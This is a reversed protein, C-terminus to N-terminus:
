ITLASIPFDSRLKTLKELFYEYCEQPHYAHLYNALEESPTDPFEGALQLLASNPTKARKIIAIKKATVVSPLEDLHCTTIVALGNPSDHNPIYICDGILKIHEEYTHLYPHIWIYTKENNPYHTLQHLIAHTTPNYSSKFHNCRKCTLTINARSFTFSPAKSCPIIHDLESHGIEKTIIRKCYSCSNKQLTLLEDKLENKIDYLSKKNWDSALSSTLKDIKILETTTWERIPLKLGHTTIM